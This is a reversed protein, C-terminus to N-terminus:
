RRGDAIPDLVARECYGGGVHERRAIECADLLRALLTRFSPGGCHTEPASETLERWGSWDDIPAILKYVFLSM